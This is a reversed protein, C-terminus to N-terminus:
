EQPKTPDLSIDCLENFEIQYFNEGRQKVRYFSLDGDTGFFVDADDSIGNIQRKLDRAKMTKQKM